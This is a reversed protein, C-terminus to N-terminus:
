EEDLESDDEEWPEINLQFSTVVNKCSVIGCQSCEVAPRRGVLVFGGRTGCVPCRLPRKIFLMPIALLAGLISLPIVIAGGIFKVAEGWDTAHAVMGVACLVFGVWWLKSLYLFYLRFFM